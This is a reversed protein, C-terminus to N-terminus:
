EYQERVQPQFVQRESEIAEVAVGLQTAETVSHISLNALIMRHVHMTPVITGCGGVGEVM